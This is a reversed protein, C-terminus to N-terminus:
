EKLYKKALEDFLKKTAEPNMGVVEVEVDGEKVRIKWAASIDKSMIIVLTLSDSTLSLNKEEM